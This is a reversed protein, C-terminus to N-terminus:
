THGFTMSISQLSKLGKIRNQLHKNTEEDPTDTYLIVVDENEAVMIECHELSSLDRILEQKKDKEPYVLYSFIPM